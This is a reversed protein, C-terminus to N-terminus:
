KDRNFLNQYTGDDQGISKVIPGSIVQPNELAEM